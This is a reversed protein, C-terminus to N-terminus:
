SQAGVIYGVRAGATPYAVRTTASICVYIHTHSHTDIHIHTYIYRYLRLSGACAGVYTYVYRSLAVGTNGNRNAGGKGDDIYRNCFNRGEARRSRRRTEWIRRRKERARERSAKTLSVLSKRNM